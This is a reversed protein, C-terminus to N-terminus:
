ADPEIVRDSPGILASSRRCEGFVDPSANLSPKRDHCPQTMSAPLLHLWACSNALGGSTSPTKIVLWIEAPHAFSREEITM